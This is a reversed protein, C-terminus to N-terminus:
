PAAGGRMLFRAEAFSETAEESLGQRAYLDGLLPGTVETLHHPLVVLPQKPHRLSTSRYAPSDLPPHVGLPREYVPLVLGGRGPGASPRLGADRTVHESM